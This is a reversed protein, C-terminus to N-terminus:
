INAKYSRGIALRNVIEQRKRSRFPIEKLVEIIILTM